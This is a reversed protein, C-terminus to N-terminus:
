RKELSVIALGAFLLAIGWFAPRTLQEGLLTVGLIAATLPEALTLTVANAVPIITLGRSFLSYAVATTIIGLHLAAALGEPVLLWTLKQTFLLPSLIVTGICFIVATVAEPPHQELVQKSFLVYSAYALGACLAMIIGSINISVQNTATFLLVCGWVALVTAFLWKWGPREKFFLIGLIGTLVPSSGIAVVTGIAVGTKSVGAFFCPQYAAMSVAALFTPLKPWSSRQRFAGRFFAQLLLVLGGITIRVAGIALSSASEPALAQATGTTGWLVAGLLILGSGRTKHHLHM